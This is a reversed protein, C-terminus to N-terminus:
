GFEPFDALKLVKGWLQGHTFRIKSIAASATRTKNEIWTELLTICVSCKYTLTPQHHKHIGALLGKVCDWPRPLYHFGRSRRYPLRGRSVPGPASGSVGVGWSHDPIKSPNAIIRCAATRGLLVNTHKNASYFPSMSMETYYADIARYAFQHFLIQKTKELNGYLIHWRRIIAHAKWANKFVTKEQM